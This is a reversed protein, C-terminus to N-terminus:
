CALLCDKQYELSFLRVKHLVPKEEEARAVAHVYVLICSRRRDNCQAQSVCHGHAIGLEGPVCVRGSTARKRAGNRAGSM